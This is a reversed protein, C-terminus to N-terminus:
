DGGGRAPAPVGLRLSAGRARSVCAILEHAREAETLVLDRHEIQGELYPLRCTGCTGSECSSAVSMGAARLAQLLTQDAPVVLPAADDLFRVSFAQDADRLGSVPQFDEFHIAKAPWHGVMDRISEMLAGPGCCYIHRADPTELLPWFDFAQAPDGHDHHVIINAAPLRALEDRFPTMAVTRTCYVLTFPPVSPRAMLHRIMSLVPTIGIGGAIFLYAPADELEFHNAPALGVLTQGIVSQDILSRSGGRGRAERKVAIELGHQDAAIISYQRMAGIPTRLALHAGPAVAPLTSDTRLALHWIDPTLPTKGVLTLTIETPSSPM